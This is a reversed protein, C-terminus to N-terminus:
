GKEFHLFGFTFIEIKNIRRKREKKRRRQCVYNLVICHLCINYVLWLGNVFPNTMLKTIVKGRGLTCKILGHLWAGVQQMEM